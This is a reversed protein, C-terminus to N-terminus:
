GERPECAFASHIFGKPEMSDSREYVPIADDSDTLEEGCVQCPGLSAPEPQERRLGDANWDDM